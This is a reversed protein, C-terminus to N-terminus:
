RPGPAGSGSPPHRLGYGLGWAATAVLALLLLLGLGGDGFGTAASAIEGLAASGEPGPGGGGAVAGGPADDGEESGKGPSRESSRERPGDEAPSKPGGGDEFAAPPATEAAVEAAERGEPGAQELRTANRTGITKGPTAGRRDDGDAEREGGGTPLGETYQNVASNDDPILYEAGATAPLIALLAALALFARITANASAM